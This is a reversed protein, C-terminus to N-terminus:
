PEPLASRRTVESGKAQWHELIAAIAAGGVNGGTRHEAPTQGFYHGMWGDVRDTSGAIFEDLEELTCSLPFIEEVVIPKGIDYRALASLDKDVKGSRPYFHVSVFDFYKAPEPAYFLPKAGTFVQAWPIVGVTILREPDHQRIATTLQKAWADAIDVQSRGALDNAIRQVFYFGGLEGTLWPHEGEKPPNIVPENILDYCFVASHGACAAAIAEWFRTQVQWREAEPLEDYWAPVKDRRYCNLGTLDLYLQHETALDLLRQLRAIQEADVETPSRMYTPLQLHWRVVNAGLRRMERFDTEIREWEVDWREEALEGHKGLYNFGWPIFPQGSNQDVFGSGDAAVRIPALANEAEQAPCAVIVGALWCFWCWSTLGLQTFRTMARVSKM